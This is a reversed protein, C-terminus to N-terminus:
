LTIALRTYFANFIVENLDNDGEKVLIVIAAAIPAAGWM